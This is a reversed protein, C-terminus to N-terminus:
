LLHREEYSRSEASRNQLTGEKESVITKSDVWSRLWWSNAVATNANINDTESISQAIITDPLV